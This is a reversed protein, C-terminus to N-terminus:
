FLLFNLFIINEEPLDKGSLSQLGRASIARWRGRDPRDTLPHEQLVGGRLGQLVRPRRPRRLPRPRPVGRFLGMERLM